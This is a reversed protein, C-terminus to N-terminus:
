QAGLRDAFFNKVKERQEPTLIEGVATLEEKRLAERQERQAAYKKAFEAGKEKIQNRQEPTLSLDDAAAELRERMTEKLRGLARPDNPDFQSQVIIIRDHIMDRAKERQEANLIQTHAKMESQVLDRRQDALAEFKPEFSECTAAIKKRQDQTLGLKDAANELRDGVRQSVAAAVVRHEIMRRAQDRQDPTLVDSAAKFEAEVLERRAQRQARYKDASGALHERIETRQEATLGLKDGASQLKQALTERLSDDHPWALPGEAAPGAEVRDEVFNKVKERQEPTLLEEVNRLDSQVLERRQERLAKRKSAFSEMVGKMKSSQEPTLKLADGAAHLREGVSQVLLEVEPRLQRRAEGRTPAEEGRAVAGWGVVVTGLILPLWYQRVKM